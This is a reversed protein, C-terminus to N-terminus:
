QEEEQAGVAAGATVLGEVQQAEHGVRVWSVFGKLGTGEPLLSRDMLVLVLGGSVAGGRLWNTEHVLDSRNM